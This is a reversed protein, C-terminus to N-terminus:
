RPWLIVSCKCNFNVQKSLIYPLMKFNIPYHSIQQGLCAPPTFLFIFIYYYNQEKDYSVRIDCKKLECFWTVGLGKHVGCGWRISSSKRFIQFIFNSFWVFSYIYILIYLLCVLIYVICKNLLSTVSLDRQRIKQGSHLEGWRVATIVSNM